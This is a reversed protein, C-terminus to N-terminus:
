MRILKSYLIKGQGMDLEPRYERSDLFKPMSTYGQPVTAVTMKRGIGANGTGDLHGYYPDQEVTQFLRRMIGSRQVAPDTGCLWIHLCATGLADSREHAVLFGLISSEEPSASRATYITGNRTSLRTTWEAPNSYKPHPTANPSLVATSFAIVESLTKAPCSNIRHQELQVSM